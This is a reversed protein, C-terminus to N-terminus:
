GRAPNKEITIQCPLEVYGALRVPNDVRIVAAHNIWDLIRYRDGDLHASAAPNLSYTGSALAARQRFVVEVEEGARFNELPQGLWHNNMGYVDVGYRNRLINGLVFNEVDSRFVVRFRFVMEQGGRFVSTPNGEADTTSIEVIEAEGSGYRSYSEPDPEEPEPKGAGAIKERRDILAMYQIAVEGAEGDAILRGGDLILARSCINRMGEVDHTVFVITKGAEQLERIRRVCKHQFYTDGVALVEDVLLIDPELSVAVAFALRVYMGSSYTRTPRDIFRGIEAFREIDGMLREVEAPALGLIHGNLYVNERGTFDPNFGAGLELITSVRGRTSVEGTSPQMIGAVIQLLTSKGSGNQGLIGLTTGAAVELDLPHLATFDRPGPLIRGRLLAGARARGSTLSPFVKSVGRLEIASENM